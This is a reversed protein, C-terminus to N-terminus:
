EGARQRQKLLIGARLPELSVQEGESLGALVETRGDELSRGLRIQRFSLVDGSKVYVASLESRQVIAKPEIALARFSGASFAVKVMIGPYVGELGSPLGVRVTFSHTVPDAYPYVVVAESIFARGEGVGFIVKATSNKRVREIYHQPVSVNVRMDDVAFGSMLPQGVSAMEGPEIHRAVVIGSFPAKVVTYDLQEKAQQYKAQAGKLRQEGANLDAVAQDFVAVSVLQKDRLDALRQYEAKNKTYQAKAEQLAADAVSLQSQQQKDRMRIIVSGQPVFDDVDFNVEIIRGSTQASLTAQQVAEIVGDYTMQQSYEKYELLQLPMSDEAKVPAVGLVFFLVAMTTLKSM